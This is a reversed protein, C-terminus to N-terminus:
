KWPPISPGGPPQPQGVETGPTSGQYPEAKEYYGTPGAVDPAQGKYITTDQAPYGAEPGLKEAQLKTRAMNYNTTSIEGLDTPGTGCKYPEVATCLDNASCLSNVQMKYGHAKAQCEQFYGCAKGYNGEKVALCGMNNLAVPNGPHQKLVAEYEAQAAQLNGEKFKCYGRSLGSELDGKINSSPCIGAAMAGVAAFALITLIATIIVSIRKM